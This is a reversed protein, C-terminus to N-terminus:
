RIGGGSPGAKAHGCGQPLLKEYAARRKGTSGRVPHPKTVKEVSSEARAAMSASLSLHMRTRAASRSGERRRCVRKSRDRRRGVAGRRRVSGHARTRKACLVALREHDLKGLAEGLAHLVAEVDEIEGDLHLLLRDHGEELLMPRHLLQLECAHWLVVQRRAHRVHAVRLAGLGDGCHLREVAVGGERIGDPREHNLECVGGLPGGRRGSRRRWVARATVAGARAAHVARARRRVARPRRHGYRGGGVRDTRTSRPHRSGAIVGGGGSRHHRTGVGARRAGSLAHRARVRVLEKHPHDRVRRTLGLELM